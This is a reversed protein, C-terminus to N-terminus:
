PLYHIMNSIYNLISFPVAVYIVGLITFAINRFPNAAKSYLEIIFIIFIFPINIVLIRYDYYGMCVIANSAFVVSGAITGSIKQPKNAGKESLKYFEWVGLITIVFFLISFSLQSYYTCGLLVLVFAGATLTRKLFNNM